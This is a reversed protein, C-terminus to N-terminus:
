SHTVAPHRSERGRDSVILKPFSNWLDNLDFVKRGCRPRLRRFVSERACRDVARRRLSSRSPESAIPALTGYIGEANAFASGNEWDVARAQRSNGCITSVAQTTSSDHMAASCICTEAPILGVARALRAGPVNGPAPAGESGYVGGAGVDQFPLSIGSGTAPLYEWLDNLESATAGTAFGFGGFLWM